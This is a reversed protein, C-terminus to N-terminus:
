PHPQALERLREVLKVMAETDRECYALLDTRLKNRDKVLHAVFLLRAIEVSAVLGDVIALDNYTLEPVLPHLIAKLSFSGRFEPHYVNNQVVPLLDVLKGALAHLDGALAPVQEALENIRTREFSSYMVIKDAKDTAELMREALEPRPDHPGEALYAQHSYKGTGADEHYSFQVVAQRWPGLGVWVPVARNITEFDLYGLREGDLATLAAKLGPEVVLQNTQIAKLQRQQTENLKETQPLKHLSHIGARMRAVTHKKYARYLRRIHDRDDPWCRDFFPCERPEWCHLGVPVDPLTGALMRLQDAIMQPIRPLLQEVDITVDARVFLDGDDPHRFATNLYMVEVRHVTLGSRRLVHLQVAVDPIHEDKVKTGSKVEILAWGGAERLLVDAAVFVGDAAFAAEFIVPADSELAARTEAIREAEAGPPIMVGDTFHTRALQTVHRGQDFRDQLVVDPRLEDADPEHDMWWLLKHCQWGAVFRSKTLRQRAGDFPLGWQGTM